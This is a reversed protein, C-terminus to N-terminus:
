KGGHKLAYVEAGLRGLQVDSGAGADEPHYELRANEFYQVYLPEGEPGTYALVLSVPYGLFDAAGNRKWFDYFKEPVLYVTPRIALQKGSLGEPLPNAPAGTMEMETGLKGLRVENLTGKYQPYWEFRAREFYQVTLLSGNQKKEDMVSSIPYGFLQVSGNLTWFALFPGGVEYGTQPFLQSPLWPTPVPAAIAATGASIPTALSGRLASKRM